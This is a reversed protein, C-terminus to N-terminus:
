RGGSFGHMRRAWQLGIVLGKAPQIMMLAIALALGPWLTMQAWMPMDYRLNVAVVIPVLIHGLILVVLYAPLDDARQHAWNQGCAPCHAVPKLFRGFLRAEGCAPCCGKLGRIMAARLDRQEASYPNTM